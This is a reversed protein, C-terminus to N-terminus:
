PQTSALRAFYYRDSAGSRTGNNNYKSQPFNLACSSVMWNTAHLVLCVILDDELVFELVIEEKCHWKSCLIKKQVKFVGNPHMKKEILFRACLCIM